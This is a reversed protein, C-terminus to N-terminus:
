GRRRRLRWDSSRVICSIMWSSCGQRVGIVYSMDQSLLRSYYIIIFYTGFGRMLISDVTKDGIRWPWRMTIKCTKWRVVTPSLCIWSERLQGLFGLWHYRLINEGCKRRRIMFWERALSKEKGKSRMLFNRMVMLSRGIVVGQISDVFVYELDNM